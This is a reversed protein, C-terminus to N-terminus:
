RRTQHSSDGPAVGQVRAAVHAQMGGRAPWEGGIEHNLRRRKTRSLLHPEVPGASSVSIARLGCARRRRVDGPQWGRSASHQRLRRRGSGRGRSTQADTALARSSDPHVSSLDIITVGPRAALVVGDPGLLIHEIAADDALMTFVVDPEGTLDAPSGFVRAGLDALEITKSATRNYVSLAHGSKLLRHAMPTGMAGLGIFGLMM